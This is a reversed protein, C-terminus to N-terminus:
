LNNNISDTDDLELSHSINMDVENSEEENIDVENNEENSESAGVGMFGVSTKYKMFARLPMHGAELQGYLQPHHVKSAQRVYNYLDFITSKSLDNKKLFQSFHYSFVGALCTKFKPDECFAGHTDEDTAGATMVIVKMKTPLIEEFIMGSHSAEFAIFMRYFPNKVSVQKLIEIFETNKIYGETSHSMTFEGSEDGLGTYYLFVNQTRGGKVVKGGSSTDGILVKFLNEKNVNTGKYDIDINHYLNPGNPENIIETPRPNLTNNAIDDYMFTIIKEKPFGQARLIQYMNCVNSQHRYRIWAKSGAVLVAWGPVATCYLIHCSFLFLASLVIRM